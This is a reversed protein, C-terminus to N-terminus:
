HAESHAAIAKLRRCAILTRKATPGNLFTKAPVFGPESALATMQRAQADNKTKSTVLVLKQTKLM